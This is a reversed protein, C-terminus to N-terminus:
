SCAIPVCIGRGKLTDKASCMRLKKDNFDHLLVGDVM